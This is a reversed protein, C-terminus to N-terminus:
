LLGKRKAIRKFKLYYFLATLFAAPFLICFLIFNVEYYSLNLINALNIVFDTCYAYITIVTKKLLEIIM